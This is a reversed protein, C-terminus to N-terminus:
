AGAEVPIWPAQLNNPTLCVIGFNSAELESSLNEGWLIGAENDRDSMYTQNKCAQIVLISGTGCFRHSSRTRSV